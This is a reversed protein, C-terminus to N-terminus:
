KLLCNFLVRNNRNTRVHKCREFTLCELGEKTFHKSLNIDSLNRCVVQGCIIWGGSIKFLVDYVKLKNNM